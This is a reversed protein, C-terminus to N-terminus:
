DDNLFERLISRFESDSLTVDKAKKKTPRSRKENIKKSSSPTVKAIGKSGARRRSPKPKSVPVKKVTAIPKPEEIKEKLVSATVAPRSTNSVVRAEATVRMSQKVTANFQLPTFIRDDIIVEFSVPYTGESIMSKLAPVVVQVEGDSLKTGPFSLSMSESAKLTMRCDYTSKESGEVDIGFRVDNSEDLFVEFNSM